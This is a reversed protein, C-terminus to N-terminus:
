AEKILARIKEELWLKMDGADSVSGGDPRKADCIEDRLQELLRIQVQKEKKGSKKKPKEAVPEEIFDFGVQLRSRRKRKTTKQPVAEPQLDESQVGKPQMEDAQRGAREVASEDVRTVPQQGAPERSREQQPTNSLENRRTSLSELIHEYESSSFPVARGKQILDRIGAYQKVFQEGEIPRPCLVLRHQQEAYRVTHMTGGEVDTQVPVVAVSM